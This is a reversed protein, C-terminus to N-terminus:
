FFQKYLVKRWEPEEKRIYHWGQTDPMTASLYVQYLDDFWKQYEWKVNDMLYREAWQRIVTPDLKHVNKTAFIFDDLTNCKFGHVGDIFTGGSYVGFDTTIIPTGHLMSEIHTGAFCELYETPTFTAKAYKFLDKRQQGSVFGVYEWNGKPISFDPTNTATLTGDALVVGGQGAIILKAGIAQTALYATLIGKRKIMRGIFFYYDKKEKSFESDEPDFYNPIVRDYYSGNICEYPAHSGYTFNQIYASEFARYNGKISGRYGIGPECTLFLKVTDAIPKQYYGQTMLLFDDPKKIKDIAEITNKNFKLTSPKRESNFDHRFDTNTWDYGIEFRNDGDGYDACIDKLTHTEIFQTCPVDSGEAGYYFVEHGLSLLMRALKHNKQTFACSMYAKSCPLHVLGLMHFRYVKKKTRWLKMANEKLIINNPVCSEFYTDWHKVLDKWNREQVMTQQVNKRMELLSTRYKDLGSLIMVTDEILDNGIIEGNFDPVSLEPVEGVMTTVPLVGMAGAEMIGLPNGESHSLCLIVDGQRYFDAMKDTPLKEQLFLFKINPLREELEDVFGWRKADYEHEPISGRVTPCLVILQIHEIIAEQGNFLETDVGCPTYSIIATTQKKMMEVLEKSVCAMKRMGNICEVVDSPIIGSDVQEATIPHRTIISPSYNFLEAKGHSSCCVKYKLRPYMRVFSDYAQVVPVHILDYDDFADKAYSEGWAFIDIDHKSYKKIANFIQGFAWRPYTWIAIKLKKPERVSYLFQNSGDGALELGVSYMFSLFSVRTYRNCHMGKTEEYWDSNDGAGEKLGEKVVDNDVGFFPTNVAIVAGPKLFPRMAKFIAIAEDRPIHELVDFMFVVDIWPEGEMRNLFELVDECALVFKGSGPYYKGIHDLAIRYADESFDVGWINACGKDLAYKIEEGRGYGISLIAKDKLDISELINPIVPRISGQNFSDIGEVGYATPKGENDKCLFYPTTYKDKAYGM